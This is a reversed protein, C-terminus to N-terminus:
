RVPRGRRMLVFAAGLLAILAAPLWWAVTGSSGEDGSETVTPPLTVGPGLVWIDASGAACNATGSPNVCAQGTATGRTGAAGAPPSATGSLIVTIPNGDPTVTLTAGALFNTADCIVNVQSSCSAGTVTFWGPLAVQEIYYPGLAAPQAGATVNPIVGSFTFTETLTLTATTGAVMSAASWQMAPGQFVYTRFARGSNPVVTWGGTTKVLNQGSGYADTYYWSAYDAPSGTVVIAYRTGATVQPPTAFVFGYWAPVLSSVSVAATALSSGTPLGSADTPLIEATVTPPDGVGADELFLYLQVHTLQGTKGATFTQALWRTGAPRIVSRFDTIGTVSSQDLVGPPAVASAAGPTLALLLSATFLAGALRRV